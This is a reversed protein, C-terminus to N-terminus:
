VVSDRTVILRSSFQGIVSVSEKRDTVRLLGHARARWVLYSHSCVPPMEIRRIVATPRPQTFFTVLRDYQLTSNTISPSRILLNMSSASRRLRTKTAHRSSNCRGNYYFQPHIYYSHIFPLELLRLVSETRQGANGHGALVGAQHNTGLRGQAGGGKFLV